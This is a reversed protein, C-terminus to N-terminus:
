ESGSALGPASPNTFLDDYGADGPKLTEMTLGTAEDGICTIPITENVPEKSEEITNYERGIPGLSCNYFICRRKQQDGKVEFAIYVKPKIANKVQGLGGKNTEVYGLFDTKFDDDFLMVTLDGNFPGETYESWYAIDDAYATNNESDQEPAFGVAGKQHYPTGMTVDDQDDVTYTGVHLNSIGFEVKNNPM